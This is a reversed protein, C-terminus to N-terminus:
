GPFGGSPASGTPGGPVIKVRGDPTRFRSGPPLKAAEEPTSVTPLDGGAGPAEVVANEPITVPALMGPNRMQLYQQYTTGPKVLGRETAIQFERIIGPDQQDKKPAFTDALRVIGGVYQEAEPGWQSPMHEVPLRYQQALARAQDLTAQDKVGVQRIIQAGGMIAERYQELGAMAQQQQQQRFQQALDPKVSALAEFAKQNNPDKVLAAYAAKAMNQDRVQRGEKFANAFGDMQVPAM